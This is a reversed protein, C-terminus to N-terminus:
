YGTLKNILYFLPRLAFKAIMLPVVIPWWFKYGLAKMQEKTMPKQTINDTWGVGRTWMFAHPQGGPTKGQWIVHKFTLFSWWFKIYSEDEILWALTLVYDECDGRLVGSKDIDLITWKEGTTDSSYKFKSNLLHQAEKYTM